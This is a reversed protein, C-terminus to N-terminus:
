EWTVGEERQRTFSHATQLWQRYVEATLSLIKVKRGDKDDISERFLGVAVLKEVATRFIYPRLGSGTGVAAHLLDDELVKQGRGCFDVFFSSLLREANNLQGWVHDLHAGAAAIVPQAEAEVDERTVQRKRLKNLREVLHFGVMQTFYAHAGALELIADLADPTFTVQAAAVPEQILRLADDPTLFDVNLFVGINFLFTVYNAAFSRLVHTGAFLFEIGEGHQMLHRIYDFARGDFSGQMVRQALVEFEDLMLLVRGGGLKKRIEPLIVSEFQYDPPGATFEEYTPLNISVGREDLAEKMRWALWYLFGPLDSATLGQMDIFLPTLDGELRYKLQRLASTKGCRREGILILITRQAPRILRDRVQQIIDERGVFVNSRTELPTGVVFPNPIRRFGDTRKFGHLRQPLIPEKCNPCAGPIKEAEAGLDFNCAPCMHTTQVRMWETEQGATTRAYEEFLDEYRAAARLALLRANRSMHLDNVGPFKVGMVNEGHVARELELAGWEVGRSQVARDAVRTVAELLDLDGALQRVALDFEGPLPFRVEGPASSHVTGPIPIAGDAGLRLLGWALALYLADSADRLRDRSVLTAAQWPVDVRSFPFLTKGEPKSKAERFAEEFHHFAPCRSLAYGPHETIATLYHPSRSTTIRTPRENEASQVVGQLVSPVQGAKSEGFFILAYESPFGQPRAHPPEIAPLEAANGILRRLQAELEIATRHREALRQFASASLWARLREDLRLRLERDVKAIYQRMQVSGSDLSPTYSSPMLWPHRDERTEASVQDLASRGPNALLGEEKDVLFEIWGRRLDAIAKVEEEPRAFPLSWGTNAVYPTESGPLRLMGLALREEGEDSRLKELLASEYDAWARSLQGFLAGTESIRGSWSRAPELLSQRLDSMFPLAHAQLYHSVYQEAIREYEAALKKKALSKRFTLFPDRESATVVRLLRAKAASYAERAAEWDATPDTHTRLDAAAEGLIRAVRELALADRSLWEKAKGRWETIVQERLNRYRDAMPGEGPRGPRPQTGAAATLATNLEDDVAKWQPWNAKHLWPLRQKIPRIIEEPVEGDTTAGRLLRALGAADRVPVNAPLEAATAPADGHLWSAISRRVLNRYVANVLREEPYEVWETGFSSFVQPNGEADILSITGEREKREAEWGGADGVTATLLYVSARDQMEVQPLVSGDVRVSTLLSVRKFPPRRTAVEPTKEEGEEALFARYRTCTDSYYHLETLTAFANPALKGDTPPPALVLGRVEVATSLSAAVDQVQYALDVLSGSGTGGAAGAVIYVRKRGTGSKLWKAIRARVATRSDPLLFMFRGLMRSGGTGQEAFPRSRLLDRNMWEARFREPTRHAADLMAATTTLMLGREDLGKLASRDTDIVLVEPARIQAQELAVDDGQMSSVGAGVVAPLRELLRRCIAGGVGGSGIVLWDIADPAKSESGQSDAM